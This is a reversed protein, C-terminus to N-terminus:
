NCMIHKPRGLYNKIVKMCKVNDDDYDLDGRRFQKIHVMEHKIVRGREDPDLKSNILITENRNAKGLTDDGLDVHYVPIGLPKYPPNNLKFAM